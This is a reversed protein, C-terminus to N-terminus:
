LDDLVGYVKENPEYKVSIAPVTERFFKVGKLTNFGQPIFDKKNMMNYMSSFSISWENCLEKRTFYYKTAILKEANDTDYIDARYHYNTINPCGANRPM